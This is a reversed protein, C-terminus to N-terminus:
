DPQWTLGALLIRAREAVVATSDNWSMPARAAVRRALAEDEMLRKLFLQATHMLDPTCLSALDHGLWWTAAEEQYWGKATPPGIYRRDDDEPLYEEMLSAIDSLDKLREDPRDNWAVIKLLFITAPSALEVGLEPAAITGQRNLLLEFGTLSMEIGDEFTLFGLEVDEPQIPLVDVPVGTPAEWRHPATRTWGELAATVEAEAGLVVLDLDFTRRKLLGQYDLATAGLLVLRHRPLRQRLAKLTENM